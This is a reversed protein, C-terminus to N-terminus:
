KEYRKFLKTNSLIIKINFKVNLITQMFNGYM